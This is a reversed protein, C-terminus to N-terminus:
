ASKWLERSLKDRNLIVSHILRELRDTALELSKVLDRRLTPEIQELSVTRDKEHKEMILSSCGNVNTLINNMEDFFVGIYAVETERLIAHLPRFVRMQQSHLDETLQKFLGSRMETSVGYRDDSLLKIMRHCTFRYNEIDTLYDSLGDLFKEGQRLESNRSVQELLTRGNRRAIYINVFIGVLSIIGAVVTSTLVTEM